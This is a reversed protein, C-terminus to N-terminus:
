VGSNQVFCYVTRSQEIGIWSGRAALFVISHGTPNGSDWKLKHDPIEIVTGVPVHPRRLPEDDRDDTITCFTKSGRVHVTDCWYGDAVGCCSLKPNDPQMLSKFWERIAPDHGEWQGLDRAHAPFCPGFVAFFAIIFAAIASM